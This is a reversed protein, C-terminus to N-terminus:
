RSCEIAVFADCSSGRCNSPGSPVAGTIDDRDVKRFSSASAFNHARCYASAAAAGCAAGGTLCRDIGYGAANASIIFLRKEAHAANAAALAAALTLIAYLSRM